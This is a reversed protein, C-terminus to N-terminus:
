LVRMMREGIATWGEPDEGNTNLQNDIYVIKKVGLRDAWKAYSALLETRVAGDRRDPKIYSLVESVIPEESFSLGGVTGILMGVVERNAMDVCAVGCVRDPQFIAHAILEQARRESYSFIRMSPLEDYAAKVLSTLDRLMWEEFALVITTRQTQDNM